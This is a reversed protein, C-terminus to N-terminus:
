FGTLDTSLANADVRLFQDDVDGRDLLFLVALDGDALFVQDDGCLDPDQIHDVKDLLLVLNQQHRGTIAIHSAPFVALVAEVQGILGIVLLLWELVVKGGFDVAHGPVLDVLHQVAALLVAVDVHPVQLGVQLFGQVLHLAGGALLLEVLLLDVEHNGTHDGHGFQLEHRRASHVALEDEPVGDVVLLLPGVALVRPADQCQGEILGHDQQERGAEVVLDADPVRIDRGQDVADLAM